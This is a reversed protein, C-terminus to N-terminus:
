KAVPKKQLKRQLTRRHMNLQRATQSINGHNAQLARQIHEWELREPSMLDHVELKGQHLEQEGQLAKIITQLDAPKTLYDDAGKRIAEVATAISGYGTLIVIRVEPLAARLAPLSMLSTTQALKMDLLLADPALAVIKEFHFSIDHFIVVEFAHKALRRALTNALAIDDEIIVLKQM